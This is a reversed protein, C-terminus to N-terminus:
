VIARALRPRGGNGEGLITLRDRVLGRRVMDVPRVFGLVLRAGIIDLESMGTVAPPRGWTCILERMLDYHGPGRSKCQGQGRAMEEVAVCHNELAEWAVESM